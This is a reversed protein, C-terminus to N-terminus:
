AGQRVVVGLVLPIDIEDSISSAVSRPALRSGNSSATAAPTRTAVGPRAPGQEYTARETAIGMRQEDLSRPSSHPKSPPAMLSQNPQWLAAADTPTPRSMSMGPGGITRPSLGEVGSHNLPALRALGVDVTADLASRLGGLPDGIGAAVRRLCPLPRRVRSTVPARRTSAVLSSLFSPSTSGSADTIVQIAGIACSLRAFVSLRLAAATGRDTGVVAEPPGRM